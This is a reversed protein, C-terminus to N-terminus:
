MLPRKINPEQDQSPPRNQPSQRLVHITKDRNKSPEPAPTPSDEQNWDTEDNDRIEDTILELRPPLTKYEEQSRKRKDGCFCMTKRLADIANDDERIKLDYAATKRQLKEEM